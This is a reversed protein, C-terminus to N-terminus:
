VLFVYLYRGIYNNFVMKFNKFTYNKKFILLFFLIQKISVFGKIIKKTQGSTKRGPIQYQRYQLPLPSEGVIARM